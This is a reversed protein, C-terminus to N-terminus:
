FLDKAEISQQIMSSYLNDVLGLSTIMTPFIVKSKPISQSFVAMKTRLKDAYDKTIVWPSVSYKIECLNIINDARDILLDIQAGPLEDTATTHWASHETYIGEIGLAEKIKDIHDYCIQEFALGSWSRFSPSTVIKTWVNRAGAKYNRIYKLYFHTYHDKLKYLQDKRKRGYPIQIDIFGSSSLENLISTTGGGSKLKTKKLLRPRTLGRPHDHLAEVIAIHKDSHDFLSSLLEDYETRLIGSKRFCTRDIFQVVSEGKEMLDLYYPIGGMAMYLQIIDVESIIIHKKRLFEKTESLTFPDLIIRETVRNHLGGKNKLVHQIMWSASSGCIVVMLDDRHTAFNNWFDTFATLFRSKNTALWPFEDLFIVKKRKSRSRTIFSSLLDFAEFWSRPVKVDGITNFSASLQTAFRQLHEDLHGRYLGTYDFVIHKSLVKRILFTKGVRRRGLIAVLESKSSKLRYQLRDQADYRGVLDM